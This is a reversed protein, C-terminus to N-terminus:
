SPRDVEVFVQDLSKRVLRLAVLEQRDIGLHAVVIDRLRESGEGLPLELNQVRWRRTPRPSSVGGM